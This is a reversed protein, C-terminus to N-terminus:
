ENEETHLAAYVILYIGLAILVVGFADAILDLM